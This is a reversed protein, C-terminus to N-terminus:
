PILIKGTSITGANELQYVYMGQALTVNQGLKQSLVAKGQADYLVVSANEQDINKSALLTQSAVDFYLHSYSTNADQISTVELPSYYHKNSSEYERDNFYAYHNSSVIKNGEITNYYKLENNWIKKTNDWRYNYISTQNGSNDWTYEMKYYNELTNNQPNRTLETKSILQSSTNFAQETKAVPSEWQDNSRLSLLIIINNGADDYTYDYKQHPVWADTPYRSQIKYALQGNTYYYDEKFAPKLTTTPNEFNHQIWSTLLGENNYTYVVKYGTSATGNEYRTLHNTLLKQDQNYTYETYSSIRRSNNYYNYVTENSLNGKADYQYISVSTTTWVGTNYDKQSSVISDLKQVIEETRARATSKHTPSKQAFILNNPQLQANAMLLAALAFSLILTKKM